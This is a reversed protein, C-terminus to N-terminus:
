KRKWMERQICIHNLFMAVPIFFQIHSCQFYDESYQALGDPAVLENAVPSKPFLSFASPHMKSSTELKQPHFTFFLKMPPFIRLLSPLFSSAILCEDFVVKRLKVGM